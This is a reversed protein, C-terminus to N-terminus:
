NINLNTLELHSVPKQPLIYKTSQNSVINAHVQYLDRINKPTFVENGGTAFIKGENLMVIRDCYQAALNLDHVAIVVTMDKRALTQLITMVELQHKMDLNATPEDLLLIEPEQVLARGTLVRQKQGGSLENLYSSALSELDLQEMVKAVIKYDNRAPAWGIHPKRGMLLTDFVTTSFISQQQQPVYAMLRARANASLSVIDTDKIQIQGAKVPLIGDICKILTSKGSGNPGILATLKGAEINLSLQKLVKKKRYAFDLNTIKINVM